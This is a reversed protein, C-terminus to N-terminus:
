RPRELQWRLHQRVAPWEAATISYVATDRLSGDALRQHARLIGDLQAGLREIARRSQTNLRHTRFEVAICDLAEFAQTLLMLKCETNLASRQASRRTWTSGIEVRRHAADIHMYTTMGAVRGAADFVTFPLMSGAAQLALRREIEAAMGEPSPVSTYWLQWLEGDRAAEVLGAEHDRGLPELRAHRGALTLPQLWPM